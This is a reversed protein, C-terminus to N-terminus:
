SVAFSPHMRYKVLFIAGAAGAVNALFTVAGYSVSVELGISSNMWLALGAAGLVVFVGVAIAVVFQRAPAIAAGVYVFALPGLLAQLFLEIARLTPKDMIEILPDQGWGGLTFMVVLHIPFAVLAAAILAGPLM